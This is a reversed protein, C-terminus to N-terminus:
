RPRFRRGALLVAGIMGALGAFLLVTGVTGIGPDSGLRGPVVVDGGPSVSGVLYIMVVWGLGPMPAVLARGAGIAGLWGAGLIGAFSLVDAFGEIRGFLRLPVLFASWLGIMAGLLVLVVCTAVLVLRDRTV